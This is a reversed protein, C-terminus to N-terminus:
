TAAGLLVSPRALRWRACGETLADDVEGAVAAGSHLWGSVDGGTLFIRALPLGCTRLIATRCLLREAAMGWEVAGAGDDVAAHLGIVALRREGIVAPGAEDLYVAIEPRDTSALVDVHRDSSVVFRTVGAAVAARITSTDVGCRLVIHEARIGAYCTRQLEDAGAVFVTVGHARVWAAVGADCLAPAPVSCTSM